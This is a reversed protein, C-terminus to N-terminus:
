RTGGMSFPRWRRIYARTAVRNPKRVMPAAIDERRRSAPSLM